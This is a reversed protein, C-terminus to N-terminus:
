PGHDFEVRTVKADSRRVAYRIYHGLISPGELKGPEGAAYRPTVFVVYHTDRENPKLWPDDTGAVINVNSEDLETKLLGLQTRRYSLVACVAAAMRGSMRVRPPERNTLEIVPDVVSSSSPSPQAMSARAPPHFVPGAPAPEGTALGALLLIWTAKM